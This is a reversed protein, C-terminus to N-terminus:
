RFLDETIPRLMPAVTAADDAVYTAGRVIAVPLGESGEGMVLSAASAIEDAVGTVTAQLIRGYLDTEGRRDRLPQLGAVGIATGMTGIRWARGLSDSVIVALRRDLLRQLAVRLARASADPDEPWLLVAAGDTAAVNSADIGANALVHGTRHRTILVDAVQRMIESAEGAVLEVVKPDKRTRDAIARSEVSPKVDALLRIRDEVKSVIKQAVVIVDGDEVTLDAAHLATIIAHALDDGPNFHPLGPVAMVTLGTPRKSADSPKATVRVGAQTLKYRRNLQILVSTLAEAAASNALPGVHWSRLDLESLITRVTEVAEGDDGAVFVDADIPDLSGLKEAGVNQLASIVRVNPGLLAAGEVVASGTSPLQVTGVKPPRLPVTADVVIKGQAAQRIEVLTDHHAAYPVTVFILEAQEAAEALSTGQVNLLPAEARLADSFAAAKQPDRSGIWVAHGRLALRKVLAGGLAGTGGIIAITAM